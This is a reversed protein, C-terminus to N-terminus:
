VDKMKVFYEMHSSSLSKSIDGNQKINANLKIM